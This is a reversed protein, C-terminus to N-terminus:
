FLKILDNKIAFVAAQTRDNVDIKKFINSIHNKVTRESINLSTAIGKNFSGNALQILVELERRTLSEIKEKDSDRSILRSNLSPILNPQIYSEGNAVAMIAKKLEASEANKLIYGNVGCDVARLLYDIENHVTLVIVKVPINRKKIEQLVEIGNKKPMNIDLLLIEPKLIPLKILCEEGDGVEGIVEIQGDFELLQKIGERMLSHDDAMMVKVSMRSERKCKRRECKDM